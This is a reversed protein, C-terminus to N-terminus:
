HEPSTPRGQIHGGIAPPAPTAALAREVAQAQGLLQEASGPSRARRAYFAALHRQVPAGPPAARNLADALATSLAGARGVVHALANLDTGRAQVRRGAIVDRVRDEPMNDMRPLDRASAYLQGTRSWRDVAAAFEGALVPIQHAVQQVGHTVRALDNRDRLAGVDAPSGVDALLADALTRAWPVVGQPDTPRMRRGDEFVMSTRGTLEWAVAAGPLRGPKEGTAAATVAAACRSSIEAAAVAARFDRLTLEGTRQTRGLAATLAASADLATVDSGRRPVGPMPVLRDLIVFGSTTPPDTQADREIAAALQRVAALEGVAAQPLLGHGLRACHDAVEALEITVAWRHSRGLIARDRGVLDAAVGALDTLPGGTRPWLRGAITCAVALDVAIQQRSSGAPTLGDDTLGTLARGLHALAGTVDEITAQMAATARAALEDVLQQLTTAM